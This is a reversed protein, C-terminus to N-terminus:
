LYRTQLLADASKVEFQTDRHKRTRMQMWVKLSDPEIVFKKKMGVNFYPFTPDSKIFQYLTWDSINFM